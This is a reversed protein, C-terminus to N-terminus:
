AMEELSDSPVVLAGRNLHADLPRSFSVPRALERGAAARGRYPLVIVRSHGM